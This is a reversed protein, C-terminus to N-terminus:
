QEVEREDPDFVDVARRWCGDSARKHLAIYTGQEVVAVDFSLAYRGAEVVVGGVTERVESELALTSLGVALGAGWYAEIDARGHILEPAPTLLKADGAYVDGAAAADGQELAAVLAATTKPIAGKM